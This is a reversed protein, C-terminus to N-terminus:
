ATRGDVATETGTRRPGTATLLVVGAVVGLFAGAGMALTARNGTFHEGFLWVSLLVSVMPNVVALLPQSVTLPGIRLATQVLVASYAGAV